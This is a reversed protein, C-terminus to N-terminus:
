RSRFSSAESLFILLLSNLANKIVESCRGVSGTAIYSHEAGGFTSFVVFDHHPAGTYSRLLTASELDWLRLGHLKTDILIHRETKDVVFSIIQSQEQILTQDSDDSFRYCRVRWIAGKSPVPM